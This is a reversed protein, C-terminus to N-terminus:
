TKYIMNAKVGAINLAIYGTVHGASMIGPLHFRSSSGNWGRTWKTEKVKRKM